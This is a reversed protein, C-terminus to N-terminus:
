TPLTMISSPCSPSSTLMTPWNSNQVWANSGTPIAPNRLTVIVKKRSRPQFRDVNTDSSVPTGDGMDVNKSFGVGRETPAFGNGDGGSGFNTTVTASNSASFPAGTDFKATTDGVTSNTEAALRARVLLNQSM